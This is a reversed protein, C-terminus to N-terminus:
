YAIEVLKELINRDLPTNQYELHWQVGVLFKHARSEIAEIVGDPSTASVILGKGVSDIAQHHTSNVVSDVQNNNLGYLLSGPEITISHSPVDKPAPQEHNIDSIIRDPIHQILTGGFLVNILQLGNCIGLVPMDRDLAQKALNLEFTARLDNTKVRPSTITQNYFKPNIDEDGGPIILADMLDLLQPINTDYAYHIMIPLGGCAEVEKSYCSRLAYWPKAAYSYKTNNNAM